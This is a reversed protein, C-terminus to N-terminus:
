SILFSSVIHYRDFKMHNNRAEIHTKSMRKDTSLNAVSNQNKKKVEWGHRIRKNYTVIQM